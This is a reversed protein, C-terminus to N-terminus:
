TLPLFHKCFSHTFHVFKMNNQIQKIKGQTFKFVLKQLSPQKQFFM